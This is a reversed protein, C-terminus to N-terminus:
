PTNPNPNESPRSAKARAHERIALALSAIQAFAAALAFLFCALAFQRSGAALLWAGAGILATFFLTFSLTLLLYARRKNM